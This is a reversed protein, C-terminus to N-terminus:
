LSGMPAAAIAEFASMARHKACTYIVTYGDEVEKDWRRCCGCPANKLAHYMQQMVAMTPDSM